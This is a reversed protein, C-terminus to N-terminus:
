EHPDYNLWKILYRTEETDNKDPLQFIGESLIAEVDYTKESDGESAATSAVSVDDTDYARDYVSLDM